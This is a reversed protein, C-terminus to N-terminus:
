RVDGSLRGIVTQFMTDLVLSMIKWSLGTGGLINWIEAFLTM